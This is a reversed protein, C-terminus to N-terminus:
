IDEFRYSIIEERLRFGTVTIPNRNLFIGNESSKLFENYSYVREKVFKIIEETPRKHLNIGVSLYAPYKIEKESEVKIFGSTTNTWGPTIVVNAYHLYQDNEDYETLNNIFWNHIEKPLDKAVLKAIKVARGIEVGTIWAGLEHEFNGAYQETDIIITFM